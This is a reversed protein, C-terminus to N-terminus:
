VHARGIEAMGARDRALLSVDLEANLALQRLRVNAAEHRGFQSLRLVHVRQDVHQQQRVAHVARADSAAGAAQDRSRVLTTYPLLPATLTSRPPRRIM